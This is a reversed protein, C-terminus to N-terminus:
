ENGRKNREKCDSVRERERETGSNEAEGKGNKAGVATLDHYGGPRRRRETEMTSFRM